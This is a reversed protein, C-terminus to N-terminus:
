LAAEFTKRIAPEATEGTSRAVEHGGKFVVFTSQQTIRLSKKLATETDYDAEFVTLSKFEADSSLRDVIPQQIKCTPCWTAHLYVITPKGAAVQEDFQAKNYPAEGAYAINALALVLSGLVARGIFTKMM